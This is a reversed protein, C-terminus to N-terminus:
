SERRKQEEYKAQELQKTLLDTTRVLLPTAQDRLFTAQERNEAELLTIREDRQTIAERHVQGSVVWGRIFALVLWVLGFILGATGGTQIWSIPSQDITETVLWM